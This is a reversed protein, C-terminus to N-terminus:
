VIEAKGAEVDIKVFRGWQYPFEERSLETTLVWLIPIKYKRSPSPGYFDTFYVLADHKREVAALVPEFATGGRGHVEGEFRGKYKYVAQVDADCEYITVQVGNKWIHHIENFFVKLQYDSISNHVVVGNAMYNHGGSIELDYVKVPRVLERFEVSRVRVLKQNNSYLFSSKNQNLLMKQLVKELKALKDVCSFGVRDAFLSVNRKGYISLRWFHGGRILTGDLIKDKVNIPNITSEVRLRSLLLHIQTILQRSSNVLAVYHEGVFGEADFLGCLLAGIHSDPMGTWEAPISRKRSRCSVTPYNEKVWKVLSKSSVVLRQRSWNKINGDLGCVDKILSKYHELRNKNEDTLIFTAVDLHGDGIFYGMVQCFSESATKPVRALNPSVGRRKANLVAVYSFPTLGDREQKRYSVGERKLSEAKSIDEPTIYRGSQERILAPLCVAKPLLNRITNHGVVLLDNECLEDARIEVVSSHRLDLELKSRRNKGRRSIQKVDFSPRVVFIKHCPTCSFSFGNSTRVDVLQRASRKFVNTCTQVVQGDSFASSVVKDGVKVADIRQLSGDSMPILTEGVFCGSTDVAVALNLVDEKRTGPRTGYRKSIRKMTYSLNSETASGCFLRLVRGWPMIPKKTKLLGDLQEILEHPTNGYSKSCLEQSKRVIDRIFDGIIPDKAAEKWTKHSEVAANFQGEPGLAGGALMKQYEENQELQIYYWFAPKKPELNFQSPYLAGPPLKNENIYSNVSLDCAVNGRQADTFRLTLHNFILHLVEHELCGVIFRYAQEPDSPKCYKQILENIYDLNVYLRILLDDKAKGVALTPIKASKGSMCVRILQQIIHGYFPSFRVLDVVSYTVQKKLQAASLKTATTM